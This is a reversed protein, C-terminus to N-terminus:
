LSVLRAGVAYWWGNLERLRVSRPDADLANRVRASYQRPFSLQVVDHLSLLEALWYPLEVRTNKRLRGQEDGGSEGQLHGLGPVDLQLHCPLRTSDALISDLDWYSQQM